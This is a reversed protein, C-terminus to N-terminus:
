VFVGVFIVAVPVVAGKKCDKVRHIDAVVASGSVMLSAAFGKPVVSTSWKALSPAGSLFTAIVVKAGREPTRLQGFDVLVPGGLTASSFSPAGNTAVMDDSLPVSITADAATFNSFSGAGSFAVGSGLDNGDFDISAGQGARYAGGKRCAGSEVFASGERVDFLGEFALSVSDTLNSVLAPTADGTWEGQVEFRLGGEGTKAIGGPGTIARAVCVTAERAAYLTAGAERISTM